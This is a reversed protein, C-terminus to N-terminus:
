PLRLKQGVTLKNPSRLKNLAAIETWRAASGLYKAALASLTDGRKATVTRAKTRAGTAAQNRKTPSSVAVVNTALRREVLELTVEVRVVQNTPNRLMTSTDWTVAQIQWPMSPPIPWANTVTISPVEVTPDVPAMADIVAILPAVSVNKAWGDLMLTVQAKAAATGVWEIVAPRRPRAVESWGGRGETFDPPTQGLPATLTRRGDSTRLTAHVTM